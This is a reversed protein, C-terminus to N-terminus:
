VTNDKLGLAALKAARGAALASYRQGGTVGGDVVLVDGTVFSSEDSALWLAAYAIDRATGARPIPQAKPVDNAIREALADAEAGFIGVSAGLIGTPIYGPCICNVRVNHESLESAVSKTLHIIGAKAAGYEHTGFGARLGAISGSSIISGSGQRRMIPAAHKMGLFVGRLHVAITRDFAEVPMTEISYRAGPAGANNFVCDLGGFEAVAHAMLAAVDAERTVDTRLYLTRDGLRQQLQRGAEDQIDAIVVRAGEEVFLEVTARGIGSAGGTIVAVKDALRGM